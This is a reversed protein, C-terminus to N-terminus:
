GAVRQSVRAGSRSAAACLVGGTRESTSLRVCVKIIISATEELRRVVRRGGAGSKENVTCLWLALVVALLWGFPVLFMLLIVPLWEIAAVAAAQRCKRGRSM